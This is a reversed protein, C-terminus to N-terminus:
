SPCPIGLAKAAREVIEENTLQPLTFRDGENKLKNLAYYISLMSFLMSEEKAQCAINDTRWNECVFDYNEKIHISLELINKLVIRADRNFHSYVDNINKELLIPNFRKGLSIHQFKSPHRKRYEISDNTLRITRELTFLEDDLEILINNKLSNIRAKEKRQEVHGTFYIGLAFTFFPLIDKFDM